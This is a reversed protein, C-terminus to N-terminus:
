RCVRLALRASTMVLSLRLLLMYRHSGCDATAELGVISMRWHLCVSRDTEMIGVIRRVSQYRELTSMPSCGDCHLAELHAFEKNSLLKQATGKEM